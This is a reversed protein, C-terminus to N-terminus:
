MYKIYYVTEFGVRPINSVRTRFVGLGIEIGVRSVGLFWNRPGSEFDLQENLIKVFVMELGVRSVGWKVIINSCLTHRFVSVVM